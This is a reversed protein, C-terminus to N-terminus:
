CGKQRWRRGNRRKGNRVIQRRKKKLKKRKVWNYHREGESKELRMVTRGATKM